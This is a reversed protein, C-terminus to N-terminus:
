VAKEHSLNERPVVVFLDLHVRVVVANRQSNFFIVPSLQGLEHFAVTERLQRRLVFDAANDMSLVPGHNGEEVPYVLDEGV